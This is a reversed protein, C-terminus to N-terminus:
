VESHGRGQVAPLERRAGADRQQIQGLIRGKQQSVIQPFPLQYQPHMTDTIRGGLLDARLKCPNQGQAAIGHDVSCLGDRTLIAIENLHERRIGPEGWPVRHRELSQGPLLGVRATIGACPKFLQTRHGRLQVAM